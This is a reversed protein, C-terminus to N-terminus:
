GGELPPFITVADEASLCTDSDAYRGNKLVVMKIAAPIQLTDVLNKITAGSALNLGFSGKGGPAYQRLNAYLAVQVKLREGETNLTVWSKEIQRGRPFGRRDM